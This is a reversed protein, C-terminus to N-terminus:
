FAGPWTMLLKTRQKVGSTFGGGLCVVGGCLLIFIFVWGGGPGDPNSGGIYIGFDKVGGYAFVACPDLTQASSEQVM